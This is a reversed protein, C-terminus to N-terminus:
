RLCLRAEGHLEEGDEGDDQQGDAGVGPRNADRFAFIACFGEVTATAGALTGMAEYTGRRPPRM